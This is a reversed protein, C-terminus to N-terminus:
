VSNKGISRSQRVRFNNGVKKDIYYGYRQPMKKFYGNRIANRSLNLNRIISALEDKLNEAKKLNDNNINELKQVLLCINQELQMIEENKRVEEFDRIHQMIEALNQVYGQREELLKGLMGYDKRELADLQGATNNYIYELIEIKAKLFDMYLNTASDM